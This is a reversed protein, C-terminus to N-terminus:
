FANGLGIGSDGGQATVIGGSQGEGGLRAGGPAERPAVMESRVFTLDAM